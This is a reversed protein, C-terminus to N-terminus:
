SLLILGNVRTSIRSIWNYSITYSMLFAKFRYRDNEPKLRVIRKWLQLGKNVKAKVVVGVSIKGPIMSLLLQLTDKELGDFDIPFLLDEYGVSTVLLTDKFLRPLIFTFTGASDSLKGGGTRMFSMSAFPISEENQQNKVMGKLIVQQAQISFTSLTLLLVLLLPLLYNSLSSKGRNPVKILL